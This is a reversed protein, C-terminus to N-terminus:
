LGPNALLNEMQKRQGDLIRAVPQGKVLLLDSFGVHYIEIPPCHQELAAIGEPTVNERGISWADFVWGKRWLAAATHYEGGQPFLRDTLQARVLLEKQKPTM